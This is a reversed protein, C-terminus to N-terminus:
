SLQTYDHAISLANEAMLSDDARCAGTAHREGFAKIRKLATQSGRKTGTTPEYVM